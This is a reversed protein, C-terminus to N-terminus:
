KRGYEWWGHRGFGSLFLSVLLNIPGGIAMFAAMRAHRGKSALQDAPREEWINQLEAYHFGSGILGIAIWLIAALVIIAIEM